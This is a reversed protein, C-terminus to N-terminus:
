PSSTFVQSVIVSVFGFGNCNFPDEGAVPAGNQLLRSSGSLACNPSPVEMVFIDTSQGPYTATFDPLGRNTFTLLWTGETVPIYGDDIPSRQTIDDNDYPESIDTPIGSEVPTPKNPPEASPAPALYDDRCSDYTLGKLNLQIASTSYCQLCITDFQLPLFKYDDITNTVSELTLGLAEGLDAFTELIGLYACKVAILTQASIDPTFVWKQADYSLNFVDTVYGERQLSLRGYFTQSPSSSVTLYRSIPTRIIDAFLYYERMNAMEAPVRLIGTGSIRRTEIDVITPM